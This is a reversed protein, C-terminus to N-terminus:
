TDNYNRVLDGFLEKFEEEKLLITTTEGEHVQVCENPIDQMPGKEQAMNCYNNCHEDGPTCRGHKGKDKIYGCIYSSERKIPDGRLTILIGDDTRRINIYGPYISDLKTYAVIM